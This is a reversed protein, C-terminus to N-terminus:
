NVGLVKYSLAVVDPLTTDPAACMEINGIVEWKITYDLGETQRVGNLHVRLSGPEVVSQTGFNKNTNDVIGRCFRPGSTSETLQM